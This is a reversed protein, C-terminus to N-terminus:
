IQSGKHNVTRCVWRLCVEPLKADKFTGQHEATCEASIGNMDWAMFVLSDPQGHWQSQPVLVSQQGGPSAHVCNIERLCIPM